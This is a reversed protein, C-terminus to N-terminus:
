TQLQNFCHPFENSANKIYIRVDDSRYLSQLILLATDKGFLSESIVKEIFPVVKLIYKDYPQKILINVLKLSLNWSNLNEHKLLATFLKDLFDSSYFTARYKQRSPESIRSLLCMEITVSANIINVNNMTLASVLFSTLYDFNSIKDIVSQFRLITLMLRFSYEITPLPQLIDITDLLKLAMAENEVYEILIATAVKSRSAFISIPPIMGIYNLKYPLRILFSLAYDADEPRSIHRILADIFQSEKMVDLQFDKKSLLFCLFQYAINVAEGNHTTAIKICVRGIHNQRNKRYSEFLQILTFYLKLLYITANNQLFNDQHLILIDAADWFFQMPPHMCTYINILHLVYLPDSISMKPLEDIINKSIQSPTKMFITTLIRYIQDNMGETNFPLQDALHIQLFCSYCNPIKNILDATVSLIKKLAEKNDTHFHPKIANFFFEAQSPKLTQEFEDLKSIFNPSNVNSLASFDYSAQFEPFNSSPAKYQESLHYRKTSNLSSTPTNPLNSSLSSRSSTPTNPLMSIPGFKFQEKDQKIMNVIQTVASEDTDPFYIEHNAFKKYISIFPPRTNPNKDWCQEILKKLDDPTLSNGCYRPIEPREDEKCVAYAIQVSNYGRFPYTGTLLEWLIIGYSYVDVKNTYDHSTFLEPAMWHPTGIDVTLYTDPNDIYRSLGFDCIKPLCNEDLLVNLSKLDRHIVRIKHLRHMGYAIGMAIITKQTGNLIPSGAKNHIANYLSGQSAYETVITYPHSTTFGVFRLLFLNRGNALIRIEREYVMFTDEHLVKANLIKIACLKGTITNIGIYVQSFGGHGIERGIEFDDLNIQYASLESSLRGLSSETM